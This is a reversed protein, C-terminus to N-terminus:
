ELHFFRCNAKNRVKQKERRRGLVGAERLVRTPVFRNFFFFQRRISITAGSYLAPGLLGIGQKFDLAADPAARILDSDPASM